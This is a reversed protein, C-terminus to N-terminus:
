NEPGLPGWSVIWVLIVIGMVIISFLYHKEAFRFVAAIIGLVRTAVQKISLIQLHSKSKHQINDLKSDIQREM